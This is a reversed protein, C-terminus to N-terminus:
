GDKIFVYKPGPKNPDPNPTAFCEEALIALRTDETDVSVEVFLDKRLLVHLPFDEKKYYGWFRNDPFLKMELAFKGFGKESFVIKRSRVQLGVASVVGMKSYYCSFPIEVERVRTIIQNPGVPIELVKNTYYIFNKTHKSLTHCETLKTHLIFHTQTEKAGCKVDSLRLHERDLGLLLNKPISIWMENQECTVNVDSCLLSILFFNVLKSAKNPTQKTKTVLRKTLEESLLAICIRMMM